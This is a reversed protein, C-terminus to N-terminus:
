HWPNATTGNNQNNTSSSQINAYANKAISSQNQVIANAENNIQNLTAEMAGLNINGNVIAQAGATASSPIEGTNLLDSVRAQLGQINANFAAYGANSFQTQLANLTMNAYQASAPNIGATTINNLLQSGFSKINNAMNQYNALDSLAKQYIGLNASTSATGGTQANYQQAAGVGTATNYNFNPNISQAMGLVQNWLVPNGSVSSPIAGGQNNVLMQAYSQLTNYFPDTPSVGAAGGAGANIPQYFTQGYAGVQPQIVNAAAGLGSLEAQQQATGASEASIAGSYEQALANQQQQYQNQLVQGRGQQFELPIANNANAALANAENLRSEALQQLAQKAITQAGTFAASPQSSKTQLESVLGPFTPSQQQNQSPNQSQPQPQQSPPPSQQTNPPQTPQSKPPPPLIGGISPVSGMTNGPGIPTAGLNMPHSYSFTPEPGSVPPRNLSVLPKIPTQPITQAQVKQPSFYNNLSNFFGGMFGENNQTANPKATLGGARLSPNLRATNRNVPVTNNIM